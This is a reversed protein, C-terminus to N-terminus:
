SRGTQLFTETGRGVPGASKEAARGADDVGFCVEGHAPSGEPSGSGDGIWPMARGGGAEGLDIVPVVVQDRHHCCRRGGQPRRARVRTRTFVLLWRPCLRAGRGDLRAAPRTLVPRSLEADSSLLDAWCPGAIPGPRSKAM